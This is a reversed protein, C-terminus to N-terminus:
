VWHDRWATLHAWADKSCWEPKGGRGMLGFFFQEAEEEVKERSEGAKVRKEFSEHKARAVHIAEQGAQRRICDALKQYFALLSDDADPPAVSYREMCHVFRKLKDNWAMKPDLASTVHQGVKHSARAHRDGAEEAQKIHKLYFAEAHGIVPMPHFHGQQPATGMMVRTGSMSGHSHAAPIAQAHTAPVTREVPRLAIPKPIAASSQRYQGMDPM